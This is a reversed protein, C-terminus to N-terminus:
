RCPSARREGSDQLHQQREQPRRPQGARRDQREAASRGVFYIADDAGWMPWYRNYREDALLQRTPRRPSTPSGCIPRTAAAITSARGSRPIATSSSRSATRRSAAGTAGTSRCRSSRAAASRRDSVADRRESVRRRRAGRPLPGAAFRADLRRRRRQRHPVDAAAARRRDGAVVFVDNNGYRNSSFAIWTGDPSFRPYIERARNDTLRMPTPATRTPPGSTASTASRSRAPTITPIARWGSPLAGPACRRAGARVARHLLAGVSARRIM